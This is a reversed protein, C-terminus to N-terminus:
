LSSGPGALGMQAPRSPGMGYPRQVRRSTAGPLDEKNTERIVREVEVDSRRDLMYDGAEPTALARSVVTLTTFDCVFDAAPFPIAEEPVILAWAWVGQTDFADSGFRVWVLTMERIRLDGGIGLLRARIRRRNAYASNSLASRRVLCFQAATDAVVKTEKGMVKATFTAHVGEIKPVQEWLHKPPVLEPGEMVGDPGPVAGM